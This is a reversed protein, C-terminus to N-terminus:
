PVRTTAELRAASSMNPSVPPRKSPRRSLSSVRSRELDHAYFSNLIAAEGQSDDEGAEDQGTTTEDAPEDQGGAQKTTVPGGPQAPPNTNRDEEIACYAPPTLKPGWGALRQAAGCLELLFAADFPRV